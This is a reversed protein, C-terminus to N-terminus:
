CYFFSLKGLISLYDLAMQSLHPYIHKWEHWWLLSNNVYLEHNTSLYKELEDCHM